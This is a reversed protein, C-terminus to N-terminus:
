FFNSIIYRYINEIGNPTLNQQLFNECEEKNIKNNSNYSLIHNKNQEFYNKTYKCYSDSYLAYTNCGMVKAITILSSPFWFYAHGLNNFLNFFDESSFDKDITELQGLSMPGLVKGKYKINDHKECIIDVKRKINVAWPRTGEKKTGFIVADNNKQTKKPKSSFYYDIRPSGLPPVNEINQGLKVMIDRGVNGWTPHSFSGHLNSRYRGEGYFLMPSGHETTIVPINISTFYDIIRRGDLSWCQNIVVVTPNPKTKDKIKKFNKLGQFNKCVPNINLGQHSFMSDMCCDVGSNKFKLYLPYLNEFSYIYPDSFFYVM